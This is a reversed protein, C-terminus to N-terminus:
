VSKVMLTVSPVAPCCTIGLESDLDALTAGHLDADTSDTAWMAQLYDGADVEFIGARSVVLRSDNNHLTSMMTSGAIDTGNIRPWFFFAKDNASESHLQATFHIYYKGAKAFTIRTLNTGDSVVSINNSYATTDFKIATATNVAAVTQNDFDVFAGYGYGQDPDNLGYGLPIWENNLSVVPHDISADWLFVGDQSPNSQTTKFTLKDRIRMLYRNLNEGWDSWRVGLPPPPVDPLLSM